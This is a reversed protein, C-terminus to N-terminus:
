MEMIFDVFYKLRPRYILETLPDEMMSNSGILILKIENNQLKM